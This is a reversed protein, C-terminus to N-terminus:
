REPGSKWSSRVTIIRVILSRSLWCGVNATPQTARHLNMGFEKSISASWLQGNVHGHGLKLTARTMPLSMGARDDAILSWPHYLLSSISGTHLQKWCFAGSGSRAKVSERADKKLSKSETRMLTACGEDGHLIRHPARETGQKM